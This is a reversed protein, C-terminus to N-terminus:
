KKNDRNKRHFRRQKASRSCDCHRHNQPLNELEKKNGHVPPDNVNPKSMKQAELIHPLIPEVMGVIVTQALVEEQGLAKSHKKSM